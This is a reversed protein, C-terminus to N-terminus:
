KEAQDAQVMLKGTGQLFHLTSLIRFTNIKFNTLQSVFIQYDLCEVIAYM